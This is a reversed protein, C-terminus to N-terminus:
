DDIYIPSTIYDRGSPEPTISCLGAIDCSLIDKKFLVSDTNFDAVKTVVSLASKKKIQNIIERGKNNFALVRAYDIPINTMEKTIGLLIAVLIRRIRSKTYRKSSVKDIIEDILLSSMGISKIRNELGEGVDSITEIYSSDLTRLLYLITDNLHSINYLKSAKCISYINEPIFTSIDQNKELMERIHSASTIGNISAKSDHSVGNRQITKVKVSSNISKLAKIYEIGLINNSENLINEDIYGNSAKSIASAYGFGQSLYEKIKSSFEINNDYLFQAAECLVNIDGSESGFVLEDVCNLSDILQVAGRSFVQANATSYIVPLEIVLDVGNLVAMKARQWKDFVAVDGRQVFSGSMVSIIADSNKKIEDILYKHGNHFPNFESVVGSIKM